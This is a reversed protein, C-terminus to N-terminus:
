ESQRRDGSRREATRRDPMGAGYATPMGWTVTFLALAPLVFIILFFPNRDGIWWAGMGYVFYFVAIMGVPRLSTSRGKGQEFFTSVVILGMVLMAGGGFHWGIALGRLLDLPISTQVLAARMGKWGLISHAASCAVLFAGAVYGRTIRGRNM